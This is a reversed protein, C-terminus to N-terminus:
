AWAPGLCPLSPHGKGEEDENYLPHGTANVLWLKYKQLVRGKADESNDWGSRCIAHVFLRVPDATTLAAAAAAPTRTHSRTHTPPPRLVNNLM